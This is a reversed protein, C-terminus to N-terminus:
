AVFGGEPVLPLGHGHWALLGGALNHADFGARIFAETAMASLAGSRCYFVVPTDRDIENARASLDGLEIHKDGQIRGAQHEEPERVDILQIETSALLDAVQQPTYDPDV